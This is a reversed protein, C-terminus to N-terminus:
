AAEKLKAYKQEMEERRIKRTAREEEAFEEVAENTLDGASKFAKAFSEIGQFVVIVASWLAALAERM